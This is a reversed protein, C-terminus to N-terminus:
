FLSAPVLQRALNPARHWLLNGDVGPSAVPLPVVFAVASTNRLHIGLCLSPPLLVNIVMERRRRSAGYQTRHRIPWPRPRPSTPLHQIRHHRPQLHPAEFNPGAVRRALAVSLPVDEDQSRFPACPARLMTYVTHALPGARILPRGQSLHNSRSAVFSPISLRSSKAVRYGASTLRVTRRLFSYWLWLADNDYAMSSHRTCTPISTGKSSSQM